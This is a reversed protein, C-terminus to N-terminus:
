EESPSPPKPGRPGKNPAPLFGQEKFLEDRAEPSMDRLKQRWEHREEPTMDLWRQRMSERTAPDIAEYRERMAQIQDPEMKELKGIRDSLLKKEEPTMQEIREITERLKGLDSQPMQLLHQLMRTEGRQKARDDNSAKGAKAVAPKEPQDKSSADEPNAWLSAAYILTISLAILLKKM